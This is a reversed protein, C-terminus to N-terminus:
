GAPAAICDDGKSGVQVLRGDILRLCQHPGYAWREGGGPLALAFNPAM